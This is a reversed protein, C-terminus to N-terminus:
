AARALEPTAQLAELFREARDSGRPRLTTRRSGLLDAALACVANADVADIEGVLRDLSLIETDAVLSKGLRTM